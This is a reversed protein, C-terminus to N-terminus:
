NLWNGVRSDMQRALPNASVPWLLPPATIPSADSLGLFLRRFHAIILYLWVHLDLFFVCPSWLKWNFNTSLESWAALSSLSLTIISAAQCDEGAPQPRAATPLQSTRRGQSPRWHSGPVRCVVYNSEQRSVLRRDCLQRPAKPDQGRPEIVVPVTAWNSLMFHRAFTSIQM